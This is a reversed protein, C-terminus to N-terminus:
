SAEKRKRTPGVNDVVGAFMRAKVRSEAIHARTAHALALALMLFSLPM